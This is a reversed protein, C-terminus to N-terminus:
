QLRYRRRVDSMVHGFIRMADALVVLFEGRRSDLDRPEFDQVDIIPLVAIGHLRFARHLEREGGSFEIPNEDLGFLPWGRWRWIWDGRLGESRLGEGSDRSGFGVVRLRRDRGFGSELRRRVRLAQGSLSGGNGMVDAAELNRLM